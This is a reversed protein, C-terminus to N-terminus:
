DDTHEAGDHNSFYQNLARLVVTVARDRSHPLRGIDVTVDAQEYLPERQELLDVLVQYPDATQLMPRHDCRKIRRLLVKPTAKMWVSIGADRVAARLDNDMFAGGGTAMISGKRETLLRMILRKELERFAPEGQNHFIDAITTQAFREIELDTDIFPVNHLFALRRGVTTKGAGPMGVLVISKGGNCFNRLADSDSPSYYSAQQHINQLYPAYFASPSLAPPLGTQQTLSELANHVDLGLNPLIQRQGVIPHARGRASRRRRTRREM